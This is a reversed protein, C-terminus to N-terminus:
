ESSPTGRADKETSVAASAVRAVKASVDSASATLADVTLGQQHAEDAVADVVKKGIEIARQSQEGALESAKQKVFDSSDGLHTRELESTPLSAAVAAGIALGVAGLALPQSRFLEGLNARTDGLLNGAFDPASRAYERASSALSIGADSLRDAAQSGQGSIADATAQAGERLAQGGSRWTSTTGQWADRAADAVKGGRNSLLWVAGMGILAASLPNKRIADGLDQVFDSSRETTDNM